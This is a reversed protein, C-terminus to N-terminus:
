SQGANEWTWPCQKIWESGECGSVRTEELEKQFFFIREPYRGIKTMKFM